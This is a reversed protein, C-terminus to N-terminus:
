LDLLLEAAERRDYHAAALLPEHSRLFEPHRAIEARIAATDNRVCASVLSQTPSVAISSPKAGYRLLVNAVRTHGRFMAEEYLSHQHDRRGPGPPSNPNAGHSLCWEALVEDDHEIATELFWRAGSGYSGANLMMWEPDAWDAARGTRMAHQYILELFWLVKGEFHINYVVQQDHPDAGHDLLVRAIAVANDTVAPLPLRTFCVYLLPEWGKAGWDKRVLDGEGGGRAREDSAEGNRRAVWAPDDALMRTVTLLDACVIATYFNATAIDPHNALLRMATHEARVHDSGGRVHHDPCANDLFRSVIADASDAASRPSASRDQLRRRLTTWGDLGFERALALQVDRLTPSVPADPLMGTLRTRATSDGARIAKLWRKAEKKLHDLTLDSTLARPMVKRRYRRHGASRWAPLLNSRPLRVAPHSIGQRPCSAGWRASQIRHAGHASGTLVVITAPDLLSLNEPM